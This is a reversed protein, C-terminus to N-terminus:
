FSSGMEKYPDVNLDKINNYYTASSAGPMLAGISDGFRRANENSGSVNVRYTVGNEGSIMPYNKPQLNLTNGPYGSEYASGGPLLPPGTMDEPSHDKRASHIFGFAGLAVIGALTGKVYPKDILRKLDGDAIAKSIRKYKQGAIPRTTAGSPSGAADAIAPISVRGTAPDMYMDEFGAARAQYLTSVEGAAKQVGSINRITDEDGIERVAAMAEDSRSTEILQGIQRFDDETMIGSTLESLTPPAIVGARGRPAYGRLRRASGPSDINMIRTIMKQTEDAQTLSEEARARAEPTLYSLYRDVVQHMKQADSGEFRRDTVIGFYNRRLESLRKLESLRNPVAPDIEGLTALERHSVKQMREQLQIADYFDLETLNDMGGARLREVSAVIDQRIEEGLNARARELQSKEFGEASEARTISRQFEDFAKMQDQAQAVIRAAESEVESAIPAGQRNMYFIDIEAASRSMFAKRNANQLRVNFNDAADLHMSAAAYKSNSSISILEGLTKMDAGVASELRVRAEAFRAQADPDLNADVFDSLKQLGQQIGIGLNEANKTGQIKLNYLRPDVGFRELDEPSIGLAEAGAQMIAIRMGLHQMLTEGAEDLNKIGLEELAKGVQRPDMNTMAADATLAFAKLIANRNSAEAAATTAGLVRMGGTTKTFDVAEEPIFFPTIVEKRVFDLFADTSADGRSALDSMIDEMQDVTSGVAMLKNVYSGLIATEADGFNLRSRYLEMGKEIEALAVRKKMARSATDASDPLQNEVIGALAKRFDLDVMDFTDGSKSIMRDLLATDAARQKRLGEVIATRESEEFAAPATEGFLRFFQGRAYYPALFKMEKEDLTAAAERMVEPTLTLAGGAGVKAMLNMLREPIEQVGRGHIRNYAADIVNDANIQTDRFFGFSEDFLRSSKTGLLERNAINEKTVGIGAFKRHLYAFRKAEEDTYDKFKGVNFNMYEHMEGAATRLTADATDDDAIQLLTKKFQDNKGFLENLTHHDKSITQVVFESPGTPQRFTMFATRKRGANDVFSRITPLGKDDFDFGGLSAQHTVSSLGSFLLRHNYIRARSFDVNRVVSAGTTDTAMMEVKDIGKNVSGRTALLFPTDQGQLSPIEAEIDFRFLDPTKLIRVRKNNTRTEDFIQRRYYNTLANVVEPDTVNGSILANNLRKALEKNQYKSGAKHKGFTLNFADRTTEDLNQMVRERVKEPVIGTRLIEDLEDMQSKAYDTTVKPVMANGAADFETFAERHFLIMQLDPNVAETSRADLVDFNLFEQFGTEKKVMVDPIVISVDDPLDEVIRGRGKLFAFPGEGVGIRANLSEIDRMRADLRVGRTGDARTFEREDLTAFAEIQARLDRMQQQAATDMSEGEELYRMYFGEYTQLLSDSSMRGRRPGSKYRAINGRADRDGIIYKELHNKNVVFVGDVSVEM